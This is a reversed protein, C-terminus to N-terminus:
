DLTTPPDRPSAMPEGLVSGHAMSERPWTSACLTVRVTCSRHSEERPWSGM